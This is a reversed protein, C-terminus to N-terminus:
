KYLALVAKLDEEIKTKSEKSNVGDAYFLVDYNLQAIKSSLFVESESLESSAKSELLTKTLANSKYEDEKTIDNINKYMYVVHSAFKNFNEAYKESVNNKYEDKLELNKPIKLTDSNNSCGFMMLSLLMIGIFVSIKKRM